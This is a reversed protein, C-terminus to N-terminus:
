ILKMDLECVTFHVYNDDCNDLYCVSSLHACNWLIMNNRDAQYGSETKALNPPRQLHLQVLCVALLSHFYYTGVLHLYM